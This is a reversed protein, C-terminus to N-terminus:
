VMGFMLEKCSKDASVLGILLINLLLINLQSRNTLLLRM